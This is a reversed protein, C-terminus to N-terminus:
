SLVILADALRYQGAPEIRAGELRQDTTRNPSRQRWLSRLLRCIEHRSDWSTAASGLRNLPKCPFVCGLYHSPKHCTRSTERRPRKTAKRM